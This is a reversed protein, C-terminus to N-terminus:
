QIVNPLKAKTRSDLADRGLRAAWFLVVCYAAYEAGQLLSFLRLFDLFGLDWIKAALAAIAITAASALNHWLLWVPRRLVLAAAGLSSTVSRVALMPALIVLIEGALEWQAGLYIAIVPRAFLLLGTLMALSIAGSWLLAFRFEAWFEGREEQARAARQYFVQSLSDNFLQLPLVAVRQGLSFHGVAKIGYLAQLFFPIANISVAALTSGPVDVIVQPRFRQFMAAMGRRQPRGIGHNRIAVALGLVAQAVLGACFGIVLGAAGPVTFAFGLQILVTAATRLVTGSSAFRFSEHRMLFMTTANVVGTLIVAVFLLPAFLWLHPAGTWSWYLAFVMTAGIAVALSLAFCLWLIARRGSHAALPIALEFRGCALAGPIAAAAIFTGLVGFDAPTYLRALLPYSALNFLQALVTGSFLALFQGFFQRRDM